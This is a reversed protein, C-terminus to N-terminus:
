PEDVSRSIRRDIVPSLCGYPELSLVNAALDPQDDELKWIHLSQVSPIVRWLILGKDSESLGSYIHLLIHHNGEVTLHIQGVEAYHSEPNIRVLESRLSAGM